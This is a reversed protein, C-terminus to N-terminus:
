FIEFYNSYFWLSPLEITGDSETIIGCSSNFAVGWLFKREFIRTKAVISPPTKFQSMAINGIGM